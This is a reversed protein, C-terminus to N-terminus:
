GRLGAGARRLPGSRSAAPRSGRPATVERLHGARCRTASRRGRPFRWCRHGKPGSGWRTVNPLVGGEWDRWGREAVVEAMASINALPDNRDKLRQRTSAWTATTFQYLGGNRVNLGKSECSMVVLAIDLNPELSVGEARLATAVPIRWSEVTAVVTADTPYHKIALDTWCGTIMFAALLAAALRRM